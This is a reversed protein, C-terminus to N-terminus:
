LEDDEEYFGLLREMESLRHIEYDHDTDRHGPSCYYEGTADDYVMDEVRLIRTCSKLGCLATEVIQVPHHHIRASMM